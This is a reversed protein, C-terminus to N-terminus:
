GIRKYIKIKCDGMVGYEKNYDCEIMHTKYNFNRISRSDMKGLYVTDFSNSIKMSCEDVVGYRNNKLGCKINTIQNKATNPFSSSKAYYRGYIPASSNLKNDRGKTIKSDSILKIHKSFEQYTKSKQRKHTTVKKNKDRDYYRVETNTYKKQKTTNKKKSSNPKLKFNNKSYTNNKTGRAQSILKRNEKLVVAVRKDNINSTRKLQKNKYALEDVKQNLRVNEKQLDKFLYAGVSGMFILILISLALASKLLSNNKKIGVGDIAKQNYVFNKDRCKLCERTLYEKGCKKCIAM